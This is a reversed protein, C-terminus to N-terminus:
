NLFQAHQEEWNLPIDKAMQTQEIVERTAPANTGAILIDDDSAYGKVFELVSRRENTSMSFYEGTSGNPVWGSVGADRFHDMLAEFAKFNIKDNKDFPTVLAPMVGSLKM